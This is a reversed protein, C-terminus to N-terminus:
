RGTVDVPTPSNGSITGSGLQGLNNAGWCKLSSDLLLACTHNAGTAVSGVGALSKVPNTRDNFDGSGLQGNRNLGWCSLVGGQIACTHGLGGAVASAGSLEGKPRTIAPTLSGDVQHSGNAGWCSLSGTASISCTHGVGAAVFFGSAGSVAAAPATTSTAGTGDQGVDNAGWCYLQSGATDGACTHNSGAALVKAGPVNAVPAPTGHSPGGDGLQGLANDGWCWVNTDTAACAHAEGAAVANIAGAIGVIEHPPQGAGWCWVAGSALLACTQTTSAAIQTAAAPLGPVQVPTGTSAIGDVGLEKVANSGWCLVQGGAIACTHDGGAAIATPVSCSPPSALPTKLLGANCTYTCTNGDCRPSAGEPATLCTDLCQQTPPPGVGSDAPVGDHDVLSGACACLLLLPLLRKM